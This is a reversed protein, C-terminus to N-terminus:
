DVSVSLPAVNEPAHPVFDFFTRFGSEDEAKARFQPGNAAVGKLKLQGTESYLKYHKLEVGAPPAQSAARYCATMADLADSEGMEQLLSKGTIVKGTEDVYLMLEPRDDASVNLQDMWNGIATNLDVIMRQRDDSGAKSFGLQVPQLLTAIQSQPRSSTTLKALRSDANVTLNSSATQPFEVEMVYLDSLPALNLAVMPQDYGQVPVALALSDWAVTKTQWSAVRPPSASKAMAPPAAWMVPMPKSLVNKCRDMIQQADSQPVLVYWNTLDYIRQVRNTPTVVTPRNPRNVDMGLWARSLPGMIVDTPTHDRRADPHAEMDIRITPNFEFGCLSNDVAPPPILLIERDSIRQETFGNFSVGEPRIWTIRGDGALSIRLNSDTSEYQGGFFCHIRALSPLYEQRTIKQLAQEYRDYTDYAAPPIHCISAEIRPGDTPVLALALAQVSGSAEATGRAKKAGPDSFACATVELQLSFRYNHGPELRIPLWNDVENLSEVPFPGAMGFSKRYVVFTLQDGSTRDKAILRVTVSSFGGGCILNEKAPSAKCTAQPKTMNGTLDVDIHRDGQFTFDWYVEATKREGVGKDVASASLEGTDKNWAGNGEGGDFPALKTPFTTTGEYSSGLLSLWQVFPVKNRTPLDYFVQVNPGPPQKMMPHQRAYLEVQAPGGNSRCVVSLCLVVMLAVTVCARLM